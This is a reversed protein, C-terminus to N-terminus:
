QDGAGILLLVVSPNCTCSKNSALHHGSRIPHSKRAWRAGGRLGRMNALSVVFNIDTAKIGTKQLVEEICPFCTAAFEERSAEIGVEDDAGRQIV